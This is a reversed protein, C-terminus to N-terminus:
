TLESTRKKRQLAEYLDQEAKSKFGSDAFNDEELAFDDQDNLDDDLVFEKDFIAFSRVKSKSTTDISPKSNETYAGDELAQFDREDDEDLNEDFDFDDIEFPKEDVMKKKKIKPAKPAPEGEFIMHGIGGSKVMIDVLEKNRDALKGLREALNDGASNMFKLEDAIFKAERLTEVAESEIETAERKMTAIANESTQIISTLDRILHQLAERSERFSKMFLTLRAAYFITVVLFVLILGDIILGIDYTV